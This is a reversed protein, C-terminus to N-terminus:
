VDQVLALVPLGRERAENFEEETPSVGRKGAEGYEAGLLLLVADCSAVRDLLTRRSDMASAAGTEFMVPRMELAEVARRAAQRVMEMEGRALSSIFIQEM